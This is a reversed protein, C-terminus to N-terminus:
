RSLAIFGGPQDNFVDAVAVAPMWRREQMVWIAFGSRNNVTSYDRAHYRVTSRRPVTQSGLIAVCATSTSFHERGGNGWGNAYKRRGHNRRATGTQRQIPHSPSAAKSVNVNRKMCTNPTRLTLATQPHVKATENLRDISHHYSRTSKYM